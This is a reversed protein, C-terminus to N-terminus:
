RGCGRRTSDAFRSLLAARDQALVALSEPALAERGAGPVGRATGRDSLTFGALDLPQTDRNRVEVWEGEGAGPHFQIETIELPGAGVRV